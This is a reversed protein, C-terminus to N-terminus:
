DQYQETNQIHWGLTMLQFQSAHCFKGEVSDVFHLIIVLPPDSVSVHM